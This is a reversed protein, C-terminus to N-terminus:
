HSQLESTHEESRRTVRLWAIAGSPRGEVVLAGRDSQALFRCPEGKEILAKLKVAHEPTLAALAELLAAPTRDTLNLAEGVGELAEEGWVLRAEDGEIAILAGEFAATATEAESMAGSAHELRAQLEAKEAEARRRYRWVWLTSSMALAVAGVSAALAFDQAAM